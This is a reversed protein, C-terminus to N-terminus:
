KLTATTVPPPPNETKNIRKFLASAILFAMIATLILTSVPIDPNDPHQYKRM